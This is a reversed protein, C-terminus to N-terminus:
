CIRLSIQHRTGCIRDITISFPANCSGAIRVATKIEKESEYIQGKM